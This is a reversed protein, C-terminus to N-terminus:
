GFVVEAIADLVDRQHEYSLMSVIAVIYDKFQEIDMERTIGGEKLIVLNERIRMSLSEKFRTYTFEATEDRGDIQIRIRIIGESM